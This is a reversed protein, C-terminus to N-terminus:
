MCLFVGGSINGEILEVTKASREILKYDPIQKHMKTKIDSQQATLNM